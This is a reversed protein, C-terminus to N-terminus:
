LKEGLRIVYYETLSQAGWDNHGTGIFIDDIKFMMRRKTYGYSFCVVDYHKGELRKTWYPKIERYEEKKIGQEIMDYWKAKLSLYLVKAETM